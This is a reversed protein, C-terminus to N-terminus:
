GSMRWARIVFSKGDEDQFAQIIVACGSAQLQFVGSLRISSGRRWALKSVDLLPGM